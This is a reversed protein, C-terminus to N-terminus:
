KVKWGFVEEVVEPKASSFDAKIQKGTIESDKLFIFHFRKPYCFM